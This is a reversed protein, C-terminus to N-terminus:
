VGVLVLLFGNRFFALCADGVVGSGLLACMFSALLACMRSGLLLM